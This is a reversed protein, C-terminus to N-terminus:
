EEKRYQPLMPIKATFITQLQNSAQRFYTTKKTTHINVKKVM